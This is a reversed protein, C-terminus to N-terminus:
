HPGITSRVRGVDSVARRTGVPWGGLHENTVFLPAVLANSRFHQELM